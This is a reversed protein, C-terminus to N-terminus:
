MFLALGVGTLLILALGPLLARRLAGSAASLVIGGKVVTNSMTALVVARAAVHMEISGSGSLEAMSLTIADVDALGSVISSVLVGADGFYYEAASAALLIAGYLLGFAVAPGLTFPNSVPVDGVDDGRAGWYLYAAYALGAAGAATIPLWLVALLGRNTVAVEVLVRAFM